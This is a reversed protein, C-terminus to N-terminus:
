PKDLKLAVVGLNGSERVCSLQGDRFVSVPKLVKGSSSGVKIMENVVHM